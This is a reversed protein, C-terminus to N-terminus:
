SYGNQKLKALVKINRQLDAIVSQRMQSGLYDLEVQERNGDKDLKTIQKSIIYDSACKGNNEDLWNLCDNYLWKAEVFLMKLQEKQKASLRSEDIKVKYVQCQQMKRKAMTAAMSSAINKNKIISSKSPM